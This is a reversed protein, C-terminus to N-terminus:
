FLRHTYPIRDFDRDNSYIERIGLREMQAKIVLDDWMRHFSLRYEHALQKARTYDEFVTGIVEIPADELYSLFVEIANGRGRRELHALVQSVVLTSTYAEYVSREADELIKLARKSFRPDASLVYVFVNSDIFRRITM